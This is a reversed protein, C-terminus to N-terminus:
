KHSSITILSDYSMVAYNRGHECIVQIPAVPLIITPSKFRALFIVHLMYCTVHLMNCTVHLMYCTVYLMYCTVHLM